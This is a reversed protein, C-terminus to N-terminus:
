VAEAELARSYQDEQGAAERKPRGLDQPDPLRSVPDPQRGELVQCGLDVLHNRLLLVQEHPGRGGRVSCASHNLCSERFLWDNPSM